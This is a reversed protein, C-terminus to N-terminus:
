KTLWTDKSVDDTGGFQSSLAANYNTTNGTTESAPYLWRRPIAGSATGISSAVGQSWNPIGNPYTASVSRRWQFYSEWGSNCFMAVYRQTFIQALGAANDGAYAINTKFQPLNVTTTGITKGTLDAITLTKGNTIGYIALSADVGSNYWTISSGSTWGRNIGEAMNFCLEPYGIFVFPEANAGSYAAPLSFYRNYALYSYQGAAANTNLTAVSTNDDAGVWATFDSVTKGATIQAPAPTAVVLLRPDLTSSTISVYPLGMSGFNDYPQLGLSVIAYPNFNQNYKYVVNDANGTMVPYQAPNSVITNFQQPIQLDANDTARKSLSILVRIRYTNILKQWQLYTLGFIDGFADLVVNPTATALPALISNANDLMTLTSKYIDHQTDYKPQLISPNGAQSFPIDGVRQTLWIGAYAQFFQSLAYYKNTKNGLQQTSQTQLAIGYKLIDYTDESNSFGYNNNGWYYAYNSLVYQENKSSMSFPQEDGRILKATLHNLLLSAPITGSAGAVNPNDVLNGKQCGTISVMAITLLLAFPIFSRMKM